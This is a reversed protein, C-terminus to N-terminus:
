ILFSNLIKNFTSVFLLGTSVCAVRNLDGPMLPDRFIPYKENAQDYAMLFLDNVCEPPKM